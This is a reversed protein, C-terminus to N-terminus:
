AGDAEVEDDENIAKSNGKNEIFTNPYKADFYAFILFIAAVILSILQDQTAADVSFYSAITMVVFKVITTVNGKLNENVM